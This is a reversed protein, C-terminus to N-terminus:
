GVCLYPDSDIRVGCACTNVKCNANADPLSMCDAVVVVIFLGCYRNGVGGVGLM